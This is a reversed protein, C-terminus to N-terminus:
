TFQWHEEHDVALLEGRYGLSMMYAHLQDATQGYMEAMFTPHVSIFVTPHHQSLLLDAGKLVELEAGEVDMTVVQPIINRMTCYDDLSVQPTDHFRECVNRFANVESVDGYACGPWGNKEMLRFRPEMRDPTLNTHRAAFGAFAGAPTLVNADFTAKIGPWVHPSPEFLVVRAGWSAVLASIDGQEAGVDFVVDDPKITDHMANLREREWFAAWQQVRHDPLTLSWRENLVVDPVSLM